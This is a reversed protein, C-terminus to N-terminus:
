DSQAQGERRRKLSRDSLSYALDLLEATAFPKMLLRLSPRNVRQLVQHWSYDSYASCIAIELGPDAKWMNVVTEIGDWGPPMRMDVFAVAYPTRGRVALQVKEFGDRGQLATDIQFDVQRAPPAAAGFLEAELTSFARTPSIPCLVRRFDDHIAANDDVVLM